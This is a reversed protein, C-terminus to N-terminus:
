VGAVFAPPDVQVLGESDGSASAIMQPGIRSSSAAPLDHNAFIFRHEIREVLGPKLHHRIALATFAADTRDVDNGHVALDIMAIHKKAIV